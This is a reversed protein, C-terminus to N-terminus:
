RFVWIRGDTHSDPRSSGVESSVVRQAAAKGPRQFGNTARNRDEEMGLRRRIDHKCRDLWIEPCVSDRLSCDRPRGDKRMKVARAVESAALFYRDGDVKLLCLVCVIFSLCIFIGM